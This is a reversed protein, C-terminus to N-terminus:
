QNHIQQKEEPFDDKEIIEFTDVMSRIQVQDDENSESYDLHEREKIKSITRPRKVEEITLQDAFM